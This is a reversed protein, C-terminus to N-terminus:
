QIWNIELSNKKWESMYFSEFKEPLLPPAILFGQLKDCRYRELFRLQEMQEVGEATVKLHIGHALSILAKVIERQANSIGLESVFSKDIKLVDIPLLKLYKVSSYGTGFDDVAISIGMKKLENLTYIVHEFNHMAFSETIEVELYQTPMNTERVVRQIMELLTNSRFQQASINVSIKIPPLGKEIWIAHQMCAKRFVLEGLANIIGTEEAIGIFSQPSLLGNKPHQWRVLAECSTIEMTKSDVIPQYHMIFQDKEIATRLNNEVDFRETISTNMARTYFKYNNKGAEKANNLATDANRLISEADNGDNPYVSIGMSVTIYYERGSIEWSKAFLSMLKRSLVLIDNIREVSPMIITFEDGGIRAIQSGHELLTKVSNAVNKLLMDGTSHGMIDNVTKFNDIDILFLAIMCNDVKANQLSLNLYDVFYNKNPIGTVLDYNVVNYIMEESRKEQTVDKLVIMRRNFQRKKSRVPLIVGEILRMNNNFDKIDGKFGVATNLAFLDVIKLTEGTYFETLDPIANIMSKNDDFGEGVIERFKKNMALIRGKNDTYIVGEEISSFVSEQLANSVMVARYQVRYLIFFFSVGGAILFLIWNEM